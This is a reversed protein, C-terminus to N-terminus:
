WGVVQVILHIEICFTTLILGNKFHTNQLNGGCYIYVIYRSYQAPGQEQKYQGIHSIIKHDVCYLFKPNANVTLM